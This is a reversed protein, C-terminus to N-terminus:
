GRRRLTSGAGGFELWMQRLVDLGAMFEVQEAPTGRSTGAIIGALWRPTIHFVIADALMSLQWPQLRRDTVLAWYEADRNPDDRGASRGGYSIDLCGKVTCRGQRYRYLRLFWEGAAKHDHSFEVGNGCVRRAYMVDLPCSSLVLDAGDGVIVRRRMDMMLREQSIRPDDFSAAVLRIDSKRHRARSRSPPVLVSITM